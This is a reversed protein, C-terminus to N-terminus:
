AGDDYAIAVAPQVAARSSLVISVERVPPADRAPLSLKTAYLSADGSRKKGTKQGDRM